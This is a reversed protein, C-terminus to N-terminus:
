GAASRTVDGGEKCDADDGEAEQTDQPFPTNEAYGTRFSLVLNSNTRANLAGRLVRFLDIAHENAESASPYDSLLFGVLCVKEETGALSAELFYREPVRDVKLGIRAVHDLNVFEGLSTELWM